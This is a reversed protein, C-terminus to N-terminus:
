TNKKNVVFLYLSSHTDLKCLFQDGVVHINSDLVIRGNCCCRRVNEVQYILLTMAPPPLILTTTRHRGSLALPIVQCSGHM